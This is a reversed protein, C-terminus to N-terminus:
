QHGSASTATHNFIEGNNKRIFLSTATKSTISINKIGAGSMTLNYSNAPKYSQRDVVPITAKDDEIYLNFDNGGTFATNTIATGGAAPLLYGSLFKNWRAEGAITSGDLYIPQPVGEIDVFTFTCQKAGSLWIGRYAISCEYNAFTILNPFKQGRSNSSKLYLGAYPIKKSSVARIFGFHSNGYNTTSSTNEIMISHNNNNIATLHSVNMDFFNKGYFAPSTRSNSQIFINDISGGWVSIESNGSDDLLLGANSEIGAYIYLDRLVICAKNKIVVANKGKTNQIIRASLGNGCIIIQKNPPLDNDWGTITLEDTLIYDGPGIFISGGVTRSIANIATQLVTYADRGKLLSLGSGDRPYATISERNNEIVYDYVQVPKSQSFLESACCISLCFLLSCFKQFRSKTLM